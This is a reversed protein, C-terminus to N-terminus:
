GPKLPKGHPRQDSMSSFFDECFPSRNQSTSFGSPGGYANGSDTLTNYSHGEARTFTVGDPTEVRVSGQPVGFPGVGQNKSM